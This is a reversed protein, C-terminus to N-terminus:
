GSEVGRRNWLTPRLLESKNIRQKRLLSISMTLLASRGPGHSIAIVVLRSGPFDPITAGLWYDTGVLARTELFLGPTQSIQLHPDGALM